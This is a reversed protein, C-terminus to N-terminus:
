PSAGPAQGPPFAEGAPKAKEVLHSAKAIVDAAAILADPRIPLELLDDRTLRPYVRTLGVHVFDVFLMSEAETLAVARMTGTMESPTMAVAGAEDVRVSAFAAARRNLVALVDPVLPGIRVIQRLVLPAVRFAVGGLDLPETDALDVAANVALDM